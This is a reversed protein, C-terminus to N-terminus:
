SSAKLTFNADGVGELLRRAEQLGVEQVFRGLWPAISADVGDQITGYWAFREDDRQKM